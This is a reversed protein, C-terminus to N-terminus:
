TTKSTIPSKNKPSLWLHRQCTGTLGRVDQSCAVRFICIRPCVDQVCVGRISVEWYM